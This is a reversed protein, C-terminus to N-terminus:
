EPPQRGFKKKSVLALIKKAWIAFVMPGNHRKTKSKEKIKSKDKQGQNKRQDKTKEQQRKTM